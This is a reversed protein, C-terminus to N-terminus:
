SSFISRPSSRRSPKEFLDRRDGPDCYTRTTEDRMGNTQRCKYATRKAGTYTEWVSRRNFHGTSGNSTPRLPDIFWCTWLGSRHGRDDVGSGRELHRTLVSKQSSKAIRNSLGLRGTPCATPSAEDGMEGTRGSRRGSPGNFAGGAVDHKAPKGAVRRFRRIRHPTPRSV